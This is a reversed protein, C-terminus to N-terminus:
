GAAATRGASPAPGRSLGQERLWAAVGRMGEDLDVRPEYGLLRRAKEGSYSGTRALYRVTGASVETRRGVARNAGDVLAALAVAVPTPASMPARRGAARTLAGFYEATTVPRPGVLTLVQGAAAPRTAALVLGRVLDDVHVPSFVGRGRAPLLLQGTRHLALPKVVWPQSGPGYVDGPRVVVAEVEGTAHAALVVHESAIKTDVYPNGDPRVPHDETVGPPFGNDSFARISSLHVFRRVGAAAAAEVVRRTGLVNVQWQEDLGVANSVVAAAHVVVDAGELAHQWGGPDTTDGPVVAEDGPPPVRDVGAAEIGNSRLAELLASGIFGGAGTVFVRTV